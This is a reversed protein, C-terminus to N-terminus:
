INGEVLYAEEIGRTSTVGIASIRQGYVQTVPIIGRLGYRLHRNYHHIEAEKEGRTELTFSLPAPDSAGFSNNAAVTVNHLRNLTVDDIVVSDDTGDVDAPTGGDFSVLFNTINANANNPPCEWSVTIVATMTTDCDVANVTYQLNM